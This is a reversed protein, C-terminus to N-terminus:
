ILQLSVTEDPTMKFIMQLVFGPGAMTMTVPLVELEPTSWEKKMMEGGKLLKKGGRPRPVHGGAADARRRGLRRPAAAPAPDVLRGLARGRARRAAPAPGRGRAARRGRHAPPPARHGSRRRRASLATSGSRCTRCCAPSSAAPRASTPRLTDPDSSRVLWDLAEVFPRYPTHVAPDCAGYLVLAGEGAAERALERVLRSKGSGAEGGILAARRGEGDLQPVLSACLRSSARGGWSPSPRRSGCRDPFDMASTPTPM